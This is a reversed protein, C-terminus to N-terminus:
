ARGEGSGYTWCFIRNSSNQSLGFRQYEALYGERASNLSGFRRFRIGEFRNHNLSLIGAYATLDIGWHIGSFRHHNDGPIVWVAYWRVDEHALQNRDPEVGLHLSLHNRRPVTQSGVVVLALERSDFPGISSTSTILSEEVPEGSPDILPEGEPEVSDFIPQACLRRACWGLFSFMGVLNSRAIILCSHPMDMDELEYRVSVLYYIILWEKTDFSILCFKCSTM